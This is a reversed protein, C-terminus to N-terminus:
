KVNGTLGEANKNKTKQLSEELTENIWGEKDESKSKALHVFIEDQSDSSKKSGRCFSLNERKFIWLILCHIVSTGGGGKSHPSEQLQFSQNELHGGDVNRRM